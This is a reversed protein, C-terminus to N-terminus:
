PNISAVGKVRNEYLIESLPSKRSSALRPTDFYQRHHFRPTVRLNSMSDAM